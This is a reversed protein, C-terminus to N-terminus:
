VGSRGKHNGISLPWPEPVAAALSAGGLLALNKMFNNQDSMKEQPNEDKWFAHMTPTVGALFGAILGAGMKPKVGLLLSLGGVAIMAGSGLVAVDAVPVGKSTAYGAMMQRHKWHNWGSFLCYGGFIARGAVLALTEGRGRARAFV